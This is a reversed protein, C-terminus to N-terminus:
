DLDIVCIGQGTINHIMVNNLKTDNHTIREPIQGAKVLELLRGCESERQYAYDLEGLMEKKRGTVDADAAKPLAALRKPTNHFDPITEHL